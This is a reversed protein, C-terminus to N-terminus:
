AVREPDLRWGDEFVREFRGVRAGVLEGADVLPDYGPTECLLEEGPRVMAAIALFNAGSAGAATCVRDPAVGYHEAIAEVLPAYGEDNPGSLALAERAGPLDELQCHHLDSRTLGFTPIPHVKSWHMYPAWDRVGEVGSM